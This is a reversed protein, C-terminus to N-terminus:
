GLGPNHPAHCDHCAAGPNHEKPDIQPFGAPKAVNARHCVLCLNVPDPKEPKLASPDDAQAHAAQPGHCAECGVGAHPGAGKADAVDGHCGACKREYVVKGANADGAQASVERSSCLLVPVGLLLVVLGRLWM